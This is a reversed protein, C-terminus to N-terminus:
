DSDEGFDYAVRLCSLTFLNTVIGVENQTCFPVGVLIDCDDNDIVLATLPLSKDEYNLTIHVEGHINLTTKSIGRASHGTPSIKIGARTVFSKSIM